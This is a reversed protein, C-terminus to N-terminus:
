GDCTLGPVEWIAEMLMGTLLLDEPGLWTQCSAQRGEVADYHIECM